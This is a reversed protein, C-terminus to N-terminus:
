QKGGREHPVPLYIKQEGESVYGRDNLVKALIDYHELVLQYRAKVEDLLTAIPEAIDSVETRLDAKFKAIDPVVDRMEREILKGMEGKIAEESLTHAVERAELLLRKLDQYAERAELILPRLRVEVDELAALQEELSRVPM